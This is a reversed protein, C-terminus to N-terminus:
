EMSKVVVQVEPMTEKRLLDLAQQKIYHASGWWIRSLVKDASRARWERSGWGHDAWLAVANFAAWRTGEMGPLNCTVAEHFAQRLALRDNEMRTSVKGDPGSPRIHGLLIEFEGDGIHRGGLEDVTERLREAYRSALGLAARAEDLKDHIQGSHRIRWSSQCGHLAARLTNNCVVRVPTMSANFQLSGDHSSSILLYLDIRDDKSLSIAHEPLNALCWVRKGGFLSGATEWIAEGTELLAQGFSFLAGNQILEYEAGVVGLVAEAGVRDSRLVAHHDPVPLYGGHLTPHTVFLQHKKVWWMLGALTQAERAHQADAVVNGKTHWPVTSSASFMTEVADM